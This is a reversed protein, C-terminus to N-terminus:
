SKSFEKLSAGLDGVCSWERETWGFFDGDSMWASLFLFRVTGTLEGEKTKLNLLLLYHDSHGHHQHQINSSHFLRRWEEDRLGRGM